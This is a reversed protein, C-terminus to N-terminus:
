RILYIAKRFVKLYVRYTELGAVYHNGTSNFNYAFEVYKGLTKAGSPVLINIFFLKGGPNTSVASGLSASLTDGITQDKEMFQIMTISSINVSDPFYLAMEISDAQEINVFSSYHTNSNAWRVGANEGSADLTQGANPVQQWYNQAILPTVAVLTLAILVIGFLINKM